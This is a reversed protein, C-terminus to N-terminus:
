SSMMLEFVPCHPVWYSWLLSKTRTGSVARVSASGLSDNCIAKTGAASWDGLPISVM